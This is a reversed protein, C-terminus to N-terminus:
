RGIVMARTAHTSRYAVSAAILDVVDDGVVFSRTEAEGRTIEVRLKERNEVYLTLRLSKETHQM